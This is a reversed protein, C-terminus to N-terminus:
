WPGKHACLSPGLPLVGRARQLRQALPLVLHGRGQGGGITAKLEAEGLPDPLSSRRTPNNEALYIYRMHEMASYYSLLM